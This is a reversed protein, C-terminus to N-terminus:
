GAFAIGAAVLEAYLATIDDATVTASLADRERARFRRDFIPGDVHRLNLRAGDRAVQAYFAPDGHVFVAAFGIRAFFGCSAAIDSVFLQPEASLIM